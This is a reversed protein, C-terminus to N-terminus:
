GFWDDGECIRKGREEFILTAKRGCVDCLGWNNLPKIEHCLSCAVQKKKAVGEGRKKQEREQKRILARERKCFSCLNKEPSGLLIQSRVFRGCVDCHNKYKRVFKRIHLPCHKHQPHNTEFSKGCTECTKTYKYFKPVLSRYFQLKCRMSCFKQSNSKKIFPNNCFLRQAHLVSTTLAVVETKQAIKNEM